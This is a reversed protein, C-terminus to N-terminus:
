QGLKETIFQRYLLLYEKVENLLKLYREVKQQQLPNDSSAQGSTVLDDYLRNITIIRNNLESTTIGPGTATYDTNGTRGQANIGALQDQPGFFLGENVDDLFLEAKAALKQQKRITSETSEVAQLQSDIEALSLVLYDDRLVMGLSDETPPPLRQPDFHVRQLHPAFQLRKAYLRLLERHRQEKNQVSSENQLSDIQRGYYARLRAKEKESDSLLANYEAQLSEIKQSVSLARAMESKIVEEDPETLAKLSDIRSLRVQLKQQQNQINAELTKIREILNAVKKERNVINEQSQASLFTCFIALFLSVRIFIGMRTLFTESM